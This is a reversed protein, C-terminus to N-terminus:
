GGHFRDFLRYDIRVRDAAGADIVAVMLWKRAQGSFGIHKRPSVDMRLRISSECTGTPPIGDNAQRATANCGASTVHLIPGGM